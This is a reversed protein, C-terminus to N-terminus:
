LKKLFSLLLKLIAAMVIFVCYCIFEVLVVWKASAESALRSVLGFKGCLLWIIIFAILFGFSKPVYWVSQESLAYVIPNAFLFLTMVVGIWEWETFYSIHTLKIILIGLLSLVMMVGFQMCPGFSFLHRMKEKMYAFIYRNKFVYQCFQM